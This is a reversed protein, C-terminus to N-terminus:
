ISYKKTMWDYAANIEKTKVESLIKLEEGLVFVKDPHYKAILELYIKRIYTKSVKGTLGLVEGYHKAKEFDTARTPDFEDRKRSNSEYREFR